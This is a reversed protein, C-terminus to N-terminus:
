CVYSHAKENLARYANVNVIIIKGKSESIGMTIRM